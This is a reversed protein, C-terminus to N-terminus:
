HPGVSGGSLPPSFRRRLRATFSHISRCHMDNSPQKTRAGRDVTLGQELNQAGWLGAAQSSESQSDSCIIYMYM